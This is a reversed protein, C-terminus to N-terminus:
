SHPPQDDGLLVVRGLLDGVDQAAARRLLVGGVLDREVGPRVGVALLHRDAELAVHEAGGEGLAVRVPLLGIQVVQDVRLQDLLRGVLVDDLRDALDGLVGVLEHDGGVEVALALQDAELRELLDDVGVRLDDGAGLDGDRPRRDLAGAVRRQGLLLDLAGERVEVLEGVREGVGAGGALVDVQEPARGQGARDREGGAAEAGVEEGDAADLARGQRQDDLALQLAAGVDGFGEPLQEGLELVGVPRRPGGRSRCTRPSPRPRRPARRGRGLGPTTLSTLERRLVRLGGVGSLVVAKM